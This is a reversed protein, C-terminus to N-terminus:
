STRSGTRSSPPRTRRGGRPTPTASIKPVRAGASPDAVGRDIAPLEVERARGTSRAPPASAARVGRPLAFHVDEDILDHEAVQEVGRERFWEVVREVLWEPASAGSTIGVTEVGDLWSDLDADRRRDPARPRRPRADRRRPAALELLEGLRDRARPRGRARAVQGGGPPQDHRLLHRGQAARRDGPLARAARRHHREDRRGLADDAHHLRAQEPAARAAARRRRRTQVLVIADPAEGM